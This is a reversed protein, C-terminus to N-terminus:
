VVVGSRPAAEHARCMADATGLLHFSLTRDAAAAAAARYGSLGARTHHLVAKPM